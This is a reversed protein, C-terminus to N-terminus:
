RGLSRNTSHDGLPSGQGLHAPPIGICSLSHDQPNPPGPGCCFPFVSEVGAKLTLASPNLTGEGKM